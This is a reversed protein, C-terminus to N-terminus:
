RNINKEDLKKIIKAPNGAIVCHGKEFSKTVISGAGVITHSGLKVGPLIVSNMGIWCKNGLIIDEGKQHINLNNFDHNSTILGVNPAIYSGSGIIIKADFNQFYNGFTQFNNIDNLDFILNDSDSIIINHSVPFKINRNSGLIKQFLLSRWAWKWGIISNDFYKGKLYNKDFFIPIIIKSLIIIVKKILNKLDIM